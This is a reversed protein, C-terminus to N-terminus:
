SLAAIAAAKKQPTADAWLPKLDKFAQEEGAAENAQKIYSLNAKRINESLVTQYSSRIEGATSTPLIAILPLSADPPDLAARRANEQTIADNDIARRANERGIMFLAVRRDEADPTGTISVSLTTTTM